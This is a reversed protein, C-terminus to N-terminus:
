QGGAFQQLEKPIKNFYASQGLQERIMPQGNKLMIKAGNNEELLFTVFAQALQPHPSNRPITVGYIMPDGFVTTTSGPTKGVLEISVKQYSKSYQPNKLNIQDPLLLYKLGHQQAVSRYLFIYDIENAELLALLDVEKPRIYKQNKALLKQALGDKQYFTEALKMTLVARYGCPDSNPDSRGFSVNKRLLVDPWNKENIEAGGRSKDHFVIAMENSAFKLNWDAHEPVLLEDIVKYDASAMVDCPKKLDSIMRACTRSGCSERLIKVQPHIEQFSDAIEKFPVALSGAHFVILEGSLDSAQTRFVFTNLFIFLIISTGLRVRDSTM